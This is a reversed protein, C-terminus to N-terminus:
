TVFELTIQEVQARWKASSFTHTAHEIRHISTKAQNSKNKLWESNELVQEFEAATLDNGSLVVCIKGAYHTLGEFMADAIETKRYELSLELDAKSESKSQFVSKIIKLLISAFSIVARFIKKPSVLLEKWKAWDTLRRYYYESLLMKSHSQESRVWPNLLVLGNIRSDRYAFFALASAADCLGWLFINEIKPNTKYVLEIAAAIDDDIEYFDKNPGESYGMGSYDFRLVMIGRAALFRALLVFQRHSGVRFQPGGVVIVVATRAEKEPMSFIGHLQYGNCSFTTPQESYNNPM